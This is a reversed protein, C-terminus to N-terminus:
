SIDRTVEEGQNVWSESPSLIVNADAADNQFLDVSLVWQWVLLMQDTEATNM